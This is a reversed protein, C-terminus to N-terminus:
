DGEDSTYAKWEEYIGEQYWKQFEDLGKEINYKPAFGLAKKAFSMDACLRKVEGARPAVNVPKKKNGCLRLITKALELISTEKGTGFNVAKGLVNEYSELVLKYAHVADKVYM